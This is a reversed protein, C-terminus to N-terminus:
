LCPLDLGFTIGQEYCYIIITYDHEKEFSSKRVLSVSETM